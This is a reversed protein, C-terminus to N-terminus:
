YDRKKINKLVKLAAKSTLVTNEFYDILEKKTPKRCAELGTRLEYMIYNYRGKHILFSLDEWTYLTGEVEKM